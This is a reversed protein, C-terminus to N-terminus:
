WNIYCPASTKVFYAKGVSLTELNSGSGSVSYFSDFDKVSVVEVPLNSVPINAVVGVLNWGKKLAIGAPVVPDGEITVKQLFDSYALYGKGPEIVSIGNLYSAIGRRYFGNDSKVTTVMPLLSSIINESPVVNISILNWGEKLELEVTKISYTVDVAVDDTNSAYGDNVTLRFVYVGTELGAISTKASSASAIDANTPGSIQEWEYSLTGEDIDFSGRGDLIASPSLASFDAGASAIPPINGAQAGKAGVCTLDDIELTGATGDADKVQWSFRNIDTQDIDGVDAGWSHDQDLEAWEVTVTKWDASGAIIKGHFNDDGISAMEARFSHDSGKFKYTIRQCDSLDYAEGSRQVDIRVGCYPDYAWGGQDLTYSASIYGNKPLESDQTIVSAGKNESDDFSEWLGGWLATTNNDEVDDVLEGGEPLVFDDPLVTLSVSKEKVDIGNTVVVAFSYRGAVINSVTLEAGDTGSLGLIGGATQRWRYTLSGEGTSATATFTITTQPMYVEKDESVSLSVDENNVIAPPEYGYERMMTRMWKGSASLDADTWEDIKTCGGVFASWNGDGDTQKNHISWPCQIVGADKCKQVIGGDDSGNRGWETVIVPIGNGWSNQWDSQHGYEVYGHWTCAINKKGSAISNAFSVNRSYRGSGLIIINDPDNQRITNIVETAYNDSTVQDDVFPENFIEYMVNPYAGWKKSFYDFFEIATSKMQDAYHEHFDIIVYIDNEIAAAVMENMMAKALDPNQSYNDPNWTTGTPSPYYSNFGGGDYAGPAISVPCRILQIHWDDVMWKVTEKTWWTQASCSWFFSPGTLKAKEGNKAGRVAWDSGSPANVVLDGFTNVVYERKAVPEAVKVRISKEIGGVTVTITEETELDGAQYFGNPANASWATPAAVYDGDASYGYVFIQESAEPFLELRYLSAEVFDVNADTVTSKQLQFYDLNVSVGWNYVKFINTGAELYYLPSDDFSTEFWDSFDVTWWEAIGAAEFPFTGESHDEIEISIQSAKSALYRFMFQYYGTEEITVSYTLVEGQEDFYGVTQDSTELVIPTTGEVASTYSEAEVKIQADLNLAIAFFSLVFLVSKLASCIQM